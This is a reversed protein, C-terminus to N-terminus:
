PQQRGARVLNSVYRRGLGSSASVRAFRCYVGSGCRADRRRGRGVRRRRSGATEAPAEAPAAPKKFRSWLAHIVSPAVSFLIIGIVLYELNEQIIPINGFFYGAGVFLGVWAAGGTVNFYASVAGLGHRRYGGHVARVHPHVPLVAGAHDDQRRAQRLVRQDSRHVQAQHGALVQRLGPDTPRVQPRDTYNTGDGVVAAIFLLGLLLWINLVPTATQLRHGGRARRRHLAALRRAPRGHRCPRDRLLHHPVAHPLGLAGYTSVWMALVTDLNLFLDIFFQIAEM